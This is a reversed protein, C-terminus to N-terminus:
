RMWLPSAGPISDKAPAVGLDSSHSVRYGPRRRQPPREIGTSVAWAQELAQKEVDDALAWPPRAAGPVSETKKVMVKALRSDLGAHSASPTHLLNTGPAALDLLSKDLSEQRYYPPTGGHHQHNKFRSKREATSEGRGLDQGTLAVTGHALQQVAGHAPNGSAAHFGGSASLQLQGAQRSGGNTGLFSHSPDAWYLDERPQGVAFSHKQFYTITVQGSTGLTLTWQKDHGWCYDGPQLVLGARAAVLAAFAHGRDRQYATRGNKGFEGILLGGNHGSTYRYMGGKSGLSMAMKELPEEASDISELSGVDIGATRARNRLAAASLQLLEERLARLDSANRREAFSQRSRGREMLLEVTTDRISVPKAVAPPAAFVVNLWDGSEDLGVAYNGCLCPAPLRRHPRPTRRPVGAVDRPAEAEGSISSQYDSRLGSAAADNWRAHFSKAHTTPGNHTQPMGAQWFSMHQKSKSYETPLAAATGHPTRLDRLM